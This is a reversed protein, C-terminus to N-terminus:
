AAGSLKSLFLGVRRAAPRPLEAALGVHGRAAAHPLQGASEALVEDYYANRQEANEFRRYPDVRIAARGRLGHESGFPLSRPLKHNCSPPFTRRFWEDYDTTWALLDLAVQDVTRGTEAALRTLRAALELNARKDFIPNM